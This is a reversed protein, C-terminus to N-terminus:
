SDDMCVTVGGVRSITRMPRMVRKDKEGERTKLCFCIIEQIVIFM